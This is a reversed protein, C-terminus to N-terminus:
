NNLVHHRTKFFELLAIASCKYFIMGAERKITEREPFDKPFENYQEPFVAIVDIENNEIAYYCLEAITGWDNSGSRRSMIEKINREHEKTKLRELWDIKM